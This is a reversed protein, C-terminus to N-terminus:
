EAPLWPIVVGVLLTLLIGLGVMALVVQVTMMWVSRWYHDLNPMRLARYIVSVGFALPVLLVYWWVHAGQLPDLFPIYAALHTM